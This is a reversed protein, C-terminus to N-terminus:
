GGFTLVELVKNVVRKQDKKIVKKPSKHPGGQGISKLSSKFVKLSLHCSFSISLFHVPRIHFSLFHISMNPFSCSCFPSLYYTFILSRLFNVVKNEYNKACSAKNAVEKSIDKHLPYHYISYQLTDIKTLKMINTIQSGQQHYKSELPSDNWLGDLYIYLNTCLRLSLFTRPGGCHRLFPTRSSFAICRVPKM